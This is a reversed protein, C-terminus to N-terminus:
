AYSFNLDLRNKLLILGDDLSQTEKKRTYFERKQSIKSLM